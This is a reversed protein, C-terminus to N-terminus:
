SRAGSSPLAAAPKPPAPAGPKAPPPPPASRYMYTALTLDAKMSDKSKGLGTMKFDNVNVVRPLGAVQEFFKALQHYSGQASITIPIESVVDKPVAPKPQFLAVGLGAQEAATSVARYLTPTEKESPLRDKLLALRKELEGVERKYREIEAVQARVKNVEDQTQTRKVVLADIRVQVPSLLVFYGGAVIAILGLAGLVVKPLKPGDIFNQLPVPLAM